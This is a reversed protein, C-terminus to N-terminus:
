RRRFSFLIGAMLIIVVLPAGFFPAHVTNAYTPTGGDKESEAWSSQDSSSGNPDRRELTKGNGNAGWSPSYQVEDVINGQDDLLTITDGNNNLTFTADGYVATADFSGDTVYYGKVATADRAVIVYGGAPIISEQPFTYGGGGADKLVWGGIAVDADTPNYLEIWEYDYDSGMSTPPDYMIENIVVNPSAVVVSAVFGLILVLVAHIVWRM